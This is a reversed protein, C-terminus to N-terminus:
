ADVPFVTIIDNFDLGLLDEVIKNQEETPKQEPHGLIIVPFEKRDPSSV